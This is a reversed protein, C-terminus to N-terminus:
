ALRKYLERYRNRAYNRSEQFRRDKEKLYMEIADNLLDDMSINLKKATEELLSKKSDEINITITSM